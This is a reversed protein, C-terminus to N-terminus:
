PDFYKTLIRRVKKGETENDGRCGASQAPPQFDRDYNIATRVREESITENNFECFNHLVFCAYIVHPLDKINIDMARRLAGFRAKLRSFSCEIVNRASCLKLGFYQEQPTRGGNAYEKMLFPMLPYAPDGLLYVPIPDEEDLIRRPCPPIRGRRLMDCLSSNSFIRADHVCGPWKVVVDLFCYDADCCAQVNLSNRGKRNIYDMSNLSPQKIEVHTGDVAGICQPVGYSGYFRTAKEKVEDETRPLKIYEPGLYVSIAHSVRRIIVSTTARSIGFTNATKRLRGEDSLYYLTIAVQREVEIPERMNTATREIVPRLENCLKFFNAKCMRFNEKWEDQVVIDQLFNDWWVHTRGPRIWFRRDAVRRSSRIRRIPGCFSCFQVLRQRNQRYFSGYLIAAAYTLQLLSILSSLLVVLVAIIIGNLLVMEEHVCLQRALPLLM